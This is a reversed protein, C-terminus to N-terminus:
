IREVKVSSIKDNWYDGVYPISGPGWIGEVGTFNPESYLRVRYGPSVYASSIMNDRSGSSTTLTPYVGVQTTYRLGQFNRDSYFSAPYLSSPASVVKLSSIKDNFDDLRPYGGTPYTKMTGSFHDDAFAQVVMGEPVILSSYTDNEKNIGTRLFGSSLSAQVSGIHYDRRGGTFNVDKYFSVVNNSRLGSEWGAGPLLSQLGSLPPTYMECHAMLLGAAVIVVLALAWLYM